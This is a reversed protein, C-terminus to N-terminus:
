CVSIGKAAMIRTLASEIRQRSLRGSHVASTLQDVAPAFDAPSALIVMDAGAQIAREAAAPGNYGAATVSGMEVADVVVMGEFGMKQHLYAYTQPALSAPLGDTLGPVVQHGVMLARVGAAFARRFPILDENELQGLPPVTASMIETDHNAHGLGPFHKPVPMVGSANYGEIIATGFTAVTQSEEGFSRLGEFDPAGPPAMDLVPAFNMTIGLAGMAAAQQSIVSRLQGPSWTRAIQNAWPLTGVVAALPAITGGEEDTALFPRVQGAAGLRLLAAHIQSSMNPTATDFFKLGGVGAEVLRVSAAPDSLRGFVMITQAIQRDIPWSSIQPASAPCSKKPASAQTTLTSRAAHTQRVSRSSCASSALLGGLTAVVM